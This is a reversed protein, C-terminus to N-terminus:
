FECDISYNCKSMKMVLEYKWRGIPFNLITKSNFIKFHHHIAFLMRFSKKGSHKARLQFITKSTLRVSEVLLIKSRKKNIKKPKMTQLVICEWIHALVNRSIKKSSVSISKHELGTIFLDFCSHNRMALNKGRILTLFITKMSSQRYNRSNVMNITTLNTKLIIKNCIVSKTHM